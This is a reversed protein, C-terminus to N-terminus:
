AWPCSPASARARRFCGPCTAIRRRARSSSSGGRTGTGSWAPRRRGGRAPGLRCADPRLPGPLLHRHPRLPRRGLPAEDGARSLAEVRGLYEHFRQRLLEDKLMAALPPTVSMTLAFPVGEGGDPRLRRALPLYCEILAEYLWREELHRAHEPHRVFPLHAHLVFALYGTPMPERPRRARTSGRKRSRKVFPRADTYERARPLLGRRTAGGIPHTVRCGLSPTNRHVRHDLRAALLVPDCFPSLSRTSFSAPLTPSVTVKSWTRSTMPAPPSARLSPM